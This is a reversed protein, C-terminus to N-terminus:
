SKLGPLVILIQQCLSLLTHVNFALEIVKAKHKMKILYNSRNTRKSRGKIRSKVNVIYIYKIANKKNISYIYKFVNKETLM